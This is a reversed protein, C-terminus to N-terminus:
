KLRQNRNDLGQFVALRISQHRGTTFKPTLRSIRIYLFKAHVEIFLYTTTMVIRSTSISVTIELTLPECRHQWMISLSSSKMKKYPLMSRLTQYGSLYNYKFPSRTNAKKWIKHLNKSLVPQASSREPTEICKKPSNSEM